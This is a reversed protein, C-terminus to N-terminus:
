FLLSPKIKRGSALESIGHHAYDLFDKSIDVGCFLNKMSKCKPSYNVSHVMNSKISFGNLPRLGLMRIPM